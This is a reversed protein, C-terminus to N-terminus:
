GEGVAEELNVVLRNNFIADAAAFAQYGKTVVRAHCAGNVENPAEALPQQGEAVRSYARQRKTSKKYKNLAENVGTQGRVRMTYGNKDTPEVYM